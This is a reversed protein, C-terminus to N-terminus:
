ILNLETLAKGLTNLKIAFQKEHLVYGKYKKLVKAWKDFRVKKSLFLQRIFLVDHEPNNDYRYVVFYSKALGGKTTLSRVIPKKEYIHSVKM